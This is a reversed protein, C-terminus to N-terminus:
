GRWLDDVDVQKVGLGWSLEVARYIMPVSRVKGSLVVIGNIASVRINGRMLPDAQLVEIVKRTLALDEESMTYPTHDQVVELDLPQAEFGQIPADDAVAWGSVGVGVTLAVAWGLSRLRRNM